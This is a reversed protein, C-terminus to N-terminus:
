LAFFMTHEFSSQFGTNHTIPCSLWTGFYPIFEKGVGQDSAFVLKATFKLLWGLPHSKKNSGFM